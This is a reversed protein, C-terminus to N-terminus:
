EIRCSKMHFLGLLALGTTILLLASPESVPVSRRTTFGSDLTDFTVPDIIEFYQSGPAGPGPFDFTVSFGSVASDVQVGRTLALADIFGDAPIAPDPQIAVLDWDAPATPNRLDRYLVRDFYITWEQIEVPLTDNVVDYSNTYSSGGIREAGYTIITAHAPPCLFGIAVIAAGLFM